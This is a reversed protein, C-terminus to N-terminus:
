FRPAVVNAQLPKILSPITLPRGFTIELETQEQIEVDKGKAALYFLVGSGVGIIPGVASGAATGAAAEIPSSTVEDILQGVLIAVAVSAVATRKWPRNLRAPDIRSTNSETESGSPSMWFTTADSEAVLRYLHVVFAAELTAAM